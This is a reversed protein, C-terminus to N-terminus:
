GLHSPLSIPWDFQDDFLLVLKLSLHTGEGAGVGNPYVVLRMKHGGGGVYLSIRFWKPSSIPTKHYQSINELHFTAVLTTIDVEPM